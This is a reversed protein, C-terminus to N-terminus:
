PTNTKRLWVESKTVVKPLYIDVDLVSILYLIFYM